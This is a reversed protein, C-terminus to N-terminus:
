NVGVDITFQVQVRGYKLDIGWGNAIATRDAAGGQGAKKKYFFVRGFKLCSNEATFHETRESFEIYM